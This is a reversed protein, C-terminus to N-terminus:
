HSNVRDYCLMETTLENMARITCNHMHHISLLYCPHPQSLSCLVFFTTGYVSWLDLLFQQWWTKYSMTFSLHNVPLHEYIYFLWPKVPLAFCHIRDCSIPIDRSSHCAAKYKYPAASAILVRYVCTCTYVPCVHHNSRRQIQAIRQLNRCHMVQRKYINSQRKFLPVHLSREAGRASWQYRIWPPGPTRKEDGEHTSVSVLRKKTHTWLCNEFQIFIYSRQTFFPLSPSGWPIHVVLPLHHLYGATM